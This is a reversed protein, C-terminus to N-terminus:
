PVLLITDKEFLVFWLDDNESLRVVSLPKEELTKELIPGQKNNVQLVYNDTDLEEINTSFSNEVKIRFKGQRKEVQLEPNYYTWNNEEKLWVGDTKQDQQMDTPTIKLNVAQLTEFRYNNETDVQYTVLIPEGEHERVMTLKPIAQEQNREQLVVAMQKVAKEQPPATVPEEQPTYQNVFLYLTVTAIAAIISFRIVKEKGTEKYM